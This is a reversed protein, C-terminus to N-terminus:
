WGGIAEDQTSRENEKTQIHHQGQHHTKQDIHRKEWRSLQEKPCYVGGSGARRTIKNPPEKPKARAPDKPRDIRKIIRGM